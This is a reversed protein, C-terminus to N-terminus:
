DGWWKMVEYTVEKQTLLKDNNFVRITAQYKGGAMTAPITASGKYSGDPQVSLRITASLLEVEIKTVSIEPAIGKVSIQIDEEQLVPQPQFAVVMSDFNLTVTSFVSNATTQDAIVDTSLNNTIEAPVKLAVLNTDQEKLNKQLASLEVKLKANEILAVQKEKESVKRATTESELKRAMASIADASIPKAETKETVVEKKTDGFQKKLTAIESELKTGQSKYSANQSKLTSSEAKLVAVEKQSETLQKRLSEVELNLTSVKSPVSAKSSLAKYKANEGQLQAKEGKLTLATNQELALQKKLLTLENELKNKESGLSLKREYLAAKEAMSEKLKADLKAISDKHTSSEKNSEALKKNTEAMEKELKSGQEEFRSSLNKYRLSEDKLAAAEKKSEALQKKLTATEAELNTAQVKSSSTEDKLKAGQKKSEEKFKSNESQLSNIALELKAKESILAVKREYLSAKEVMSEKLKSDLKAVLDKNASVEKAQGAKLEEKEASLLTVQTQLKTLTSKLKDIEISAQQANKDVNLKATEIKNKASNTQEIQNKLEVNEKLLAQKREFLATKEQNILKLKSALDNALTKQKDELKQVQTNLTANDSKLGQNLLLANALQEQVLQKEIALKKLKAESEKLAAAEKKSEALQKKLTATEAELNTAQVKSSSTEDKLKAGQKKSEEKFKSNESQLSNIALELKAKESILAVKREYLSAKEVMSEKLKSDLKAVLDKNASVEKAQGAKLEEKEASLLTVQTQLKTLTSKLKDIEISAQQANKDVNLKATEIKNKASNTQEIQNKLEVNEKLLAQKREFLATKEQNILKLKSALDNALTKQKDELKQVQTNLTANDSKLGQNLLLANALQEQVLQKEITLKKLKAESDKLNALKTQENRENKVNLEKIQENLAFINEELESLKQKFINLQSQLVVKESTIQNLVKEKLVIANQVKLIQAKSAQQDEVLKTIQAQLALKESTIQELEKEKKAIQDQVKQMQAKSGQQDNALKSNQAKLSSLEENVSAIESLLEQKRTYLSEKDSIIAKIRNDLNTKTEEKEQTLTQVKSTLVENELRLNAKELELDKLKTVAKVLQSDQPPPWGSAPVAKFANTRAILVALSQRDILKGVGLPSNKGPSILGQEIAAAVSKAAWHGPPVDTYGTTEDSLDNGDLKILAVLVELRTIKHNPNFNGNKDFSMLGSEIISEECNKVPLNKIRCLIEAFELRTVPNSPYFQNNDLKILQKQIAETIYVTAKNTPNVDAIVATQTALGAAVLCLYLSVLLLLRKM